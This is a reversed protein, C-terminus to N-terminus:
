TVGNICWCCSCTSRTRCHLLKTQGKLSASKPRNQDIKPRRHQYNQPETRPPYWGSDCGAPPRCAFTRLGAFAPSLPARTWAHISAPVVVCMNLSAESRLSGSLSFTSSCPGDHMCHVPFMCHRNSNLHQFPTEARPFGRRGMSFLLLHIRRLMYPPRTKKRCNM